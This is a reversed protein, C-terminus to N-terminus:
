SPFRRSAFFIKQGIYPLFNFRKKQFSPMSRVAQNLAPSFFGQVLAQKEHGTNIHRTNNKHHVKLAPKDWHFLNRELM